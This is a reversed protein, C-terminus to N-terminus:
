RPSLAPTRLSTHAELPHRLKTCAPDDNSLVAHPQQLFEMSKTSVDALVAALTVDMKSVTASFTALSPV